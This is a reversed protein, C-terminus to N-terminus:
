KKLTAYVRPNIFQELLDGLLKAWIDRATIPLHGKVVRNAKPNLTPYRDVSNELPGRKETKISDETFGCVVCLRLGLHCDEYENYRSGGYSEMITVVFPHGCLKVLQKETKEAFAKAREVDRVTIDKRKACELHAILRNRTDRVKVPVGRCVLLADKLCEEMFEAQRLEEQLRRLDAEIEKSESVAQDRAKQIEKLHISVFRLELAIDDAKLETARGRAKAM